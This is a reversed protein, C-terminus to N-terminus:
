VSQFVIIITNAIPNASQIKPAEPLASPTTKSFPLRIINIRNSFDIVLRCIFSGFTRKAREVDEILILIVRNFPNLKADRDEWFLRKTPENLIQLLDVGANLKILIGLLKHFGSGFLNRIKCM